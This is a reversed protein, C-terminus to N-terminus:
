QIRGSDQSTPNITENEMPSFLGLSTLHNTWPWVVLYEFVLLGSRRVMQQLRAARPPGQVLLRLIVGSGTLPASPLGQGAGLSELGCRPLIGPHNAHMNRTSFCEAIHRFAWLFPLSSEGSPAESM